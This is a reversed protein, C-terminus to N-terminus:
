IIAPVAFSCGSMDRNEECLRQCVHIGQNPLHLIRKATCKQNHLSTKLVAVQVASPGTVQKVM